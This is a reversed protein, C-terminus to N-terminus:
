DGPFAANGPLQVPSGARLAQLRYVRGYTGDETLVIDAIDTVYRELADLEEDIAGGREALARQERRFTEVGDYAPPGMVIMPVPAPSVVAAVLAPPADDGQAVLAVAHDHVEPRAALYRVASEIDAGLDEYTARLLPEVEVFGRRVPLLVAYGERVLQDVLRDTGAISAVVVGPGPEGRTAPLVLTGRLRTGDRENVWSVEESDRQSAPSPPPPVPAPAPTSGASGAEAVSAVARRVGDVSARPLLRAELSVPVTAIGVFAMLAVRAVSVFWSADFAIAFCSGASRCASRSM